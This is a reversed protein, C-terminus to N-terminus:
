TDELFREHHEGTGQGYFGTHIRAVSRDKGIFILTPYSRFGELGPLARAVNERTAKGGFLFDGRSVGTAKRMREIGPLARQLDDYLEFNIHLIEVEEEPYDATLEELARNADMCNPCWS